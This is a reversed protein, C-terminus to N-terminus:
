LAVLTSSLAATAARAPSPRGRPAGRGREMRAPAPAADGRWGRPRALLQPTASRPCGEGARGAHAASLGLKKPPTRLAARRAQRRHRPRVHRATTAGERRPLDPERLAGRRRGES